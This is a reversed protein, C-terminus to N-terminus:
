PVWPIHSEKYPGRVCDYRRPVTEASKTEIEDVSSCFGSFGENM